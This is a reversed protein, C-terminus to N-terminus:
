YPMWQLTYIFVVKKNKKALRQVVVRIESRILAVSSHLWQVARPQTIASM